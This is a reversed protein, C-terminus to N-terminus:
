KKLRIEKDKEGLALGIATAYALSDKQNIEPIYDNIDTVNIWPNGLNVIVGLTSTLYEALGPLASEGGCLYIENIVDRKEENEDKHTNWYVYLKNIEDRLTGISGMITEPLEPAEVHSELGFERKWKEAMDRAVGLKKQILDTLNAGGIEVTSALVVNENEVVCIGTRTEGIDVIMSVKKEDKKVLARALAQAELEFSLPVFGTGEFVSLYSDITQASCAVVIFDMNTEGDKICEYDFVAETAPIPIHEELSFQITTEAQKASVKPIRLSFLYVQEEPLAMRVYQTTTKSRLSKIIKKLGETDIIKGSQLIGQPINEKGYKGLRLGKSTTRIEVYKISRDSLDFGVSPLLLSSPPPFIARKHM